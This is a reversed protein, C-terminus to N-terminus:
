ITASINSEISIDMVLKRTSHTYKRDLGTRVGVLAKINERASASKKAPDIPIGTVTYETMVFAGWENKDQKPTCRIRQTSQVMEIKWKSAMAISLYMVIQQLHWNKYWFDRCPLAVNKIIMAQTKPVRM